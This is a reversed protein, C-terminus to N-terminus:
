KIHVIAKNGISIGQKDSTFGAELLYSKGFEADNKVPKLKISTISGQYNEGQIEITVPQAIQFKELADVEATFKALYHGQRALTILTKSEISNNISLGQNVHVSLILANFPANLKSYSLEYDAVALQAEAKKLFAKDRKVKLEANELRVTSLVTRDYLEQRNKLDRSSETLLSQQVIVRSEAHNKAAQFPIQDFQLMEEGQKVYQGAVVNLTKIVGSVPLSLEISKSLDITADYDVAYASTCIVSLTFILLDRIIKMINILKKNIYNKELSPISKHGSLPLKLIM